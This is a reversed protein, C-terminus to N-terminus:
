GPSDGPSPMEKTELMECSVDLTAHMSDERLLPIVALPVLKGAPMSTLVSIPQPRRTNPFKVADTHQRNVNMM